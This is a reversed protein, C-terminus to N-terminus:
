APHGANRARADAVTLAWALALLLWLHRWHTSDIFFSQALVGVLCPFVTYIDQRFSSDPRALRRARVLTLGLLGIFAVGGLWGSEVPVQLYINHPELGFEEDARGPGIGLPSRGIRELALHQMNFRGGEELDYDQAIVARQFFRDAASTYTIILILVTAASAVLTLGALLWTVRHRFSRNSLIWYSMSLTFALSFNIWAGRSFSLFLGFVIFLFLPLFLWRRRSESVFRGVCYIAPPVLFPGYVNADKFFAKARLGGAFKPGLAGLYGYYELMGVTTALVAAVLYGSWIAPLTLRPATAVLATFFLFALGMYFRISLSRMAEVPHTALTAAITNGVLFAGLLLVPAKLERPLPLGASFMAIATAILLLDYPAPEIYVISGSALILFIMGRAFPSIARPQSPSAPALVAQAKHGAMSIM